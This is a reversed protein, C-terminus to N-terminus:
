VGAGSDPKCAAAVTAAAAAAVEAHPQRNPRSRVKPREKPRSQEEPYFLPFICSSAPTCNFRALPFVCLRVFPLFASCKMYSPHLQTENLPGTRAKRLVIIGRCKGLDSNSLTRKLDVFALLFWWIRAYRVCM